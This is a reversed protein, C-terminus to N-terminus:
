WSEEERLRERRPQNRSSQKREEERVSPVLTHPPPRVPLPITPPSVSHMGSSLVSAYSAGLKYGVADRQEYEVGFDWGTPLSPWETPELVQEAESEFDAGASHTADVEVWADDDHHLAKPHAGEEVLPPFSWLLQALPM